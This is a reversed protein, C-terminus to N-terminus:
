VEEYPVLAPVQRRTRVPTGVLDEVYFRYAAKYETTPHASLFTINILSGDENPTVSDVVREGGRPEGNLFARVTQGPQANKAKIVGDHPTEVIQIKFGPRVKAGAEADFESVIRETPEVDVVPVKFQPMLAPSPTSM